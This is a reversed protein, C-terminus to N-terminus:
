SEILCLFWTVLGVLLCNKAWSAVRKSDEVWPETFREWFRLILGRVGEMYLLYKGMVTVYSVEASGVDCSVRSGSACVGKGSWARLEGVEIIIRALLPFFLAPRASPFFIFIDVTTSASARSPNKM